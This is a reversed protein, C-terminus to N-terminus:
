NCDQQLTISAYSGTGAANVAAVQFSGGTPLGQVLRPTASILTTAGGSGIRWRYGTVASGGDSAPADWAIENDNGCAWYSTARRVNTPLGPVSAASPTVSSSAATYTGTGNANIGAVRFVYATGNTLGTVVQSATASATRSFTTWTSGSDTSFQVSYETIASGGNYSPATWTLSAQANGDTATLSTPASMPGVDPFAAVPVTITSGTYLRNNGVTWRFEDIFGNISTGANQSGIWVFNPNVVWSTSDTVTGVLTGDVYLRNTSGTRSVAIHQWANASFSLSGFQVPWSTNAGGMWLQGSGSLNIGLMLYGNANANGGIIWGQATASALNQWWEICFDGSMNMASSSAVAIYQGSGGISFSGSGYKKTATSISAGSATITRAYASSDVLSDAHLLLQVNGFLPDGATPTVASSASTYPGTGNANIGAVRFVYATGNTLGSVVQSATTSATRTVTTWTSGSDSSFQVSYDTIASGGNYSPATWALSVQANGGTTTLSTPASM